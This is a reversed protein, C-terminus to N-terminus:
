TDIKETAVIIDKVMGCRLKYLKGQRKSASTINNAEQKQKAVYHLYKELAERYGPVKRLVATIENSDACISHLATVIGDKIDIDDSSLIRVFLDVLFRKCEDEFSGTDELLWICVIRIAAVMSSFRIDEKSHTLNPWCGFTVELYDVVLSITEKLHHLLNRLDDNKLRDNLNNSTEDSGHGLNSILSKITFELITLHDAYSDYVLPNASKAVVKGDEIEPEDGHTLHRKLLPIILHLEALSTRSICLFIKTEDDSSWKADPSIWGFGDSISCLCSVWRYAERTIDEKIRSRFISYLKDRLPILDAMNIFIKSLIIQPRFIPSEFNTSIGALAISLM